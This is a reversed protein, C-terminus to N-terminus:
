KHHSFTRKLTQGSDPGTVPYWDIFTFFMVFHRVWVPVWDALRAPPLAGGGGHVHQPVGPRDRVLVLRPDLFPFPWIPSRNLPVCEIILDQDSTGSSRAVLCTVKCCRRILFRLKKEQKWLEKSAADETAASFYFRIMWSWWERKRTWPYSWPLFFPDRTIKKM